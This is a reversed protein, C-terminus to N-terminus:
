NTTSLTSTEDDSKDKAYPPNVNAGARHILGRGPNKTETM